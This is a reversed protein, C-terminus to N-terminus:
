RSPSPPSWGGTDPSARGCRPSCPSVEL